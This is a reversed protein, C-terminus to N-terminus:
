YGWRVYGCFAEVGFGACLAGVFVFYYVFSSWVMGQEPLNLFLSIELDFVVFFILLSLYSFGFSDFSPTTAAFGCEYPSAWAHTPVKHAALPSASAAVIAGGVVCFILGLVVFTVM